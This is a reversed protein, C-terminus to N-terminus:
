VSIMLYYWSFWKNEVYKGKWLGPLWFMEMSLPHPFLHTEYLGGFM